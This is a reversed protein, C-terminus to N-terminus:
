PEIRQIEKLKDFDQDYSYIQGIKKKISLAYNYADIFDVNQSEFKQTALLLVEKNPITLGEFLIIQRLKEAVEKRSEKYFSNLVWALEAIVIESTFLKIKGVKAAEFLKRCRPSQRPHDALLFRLFINTDVFRISKM